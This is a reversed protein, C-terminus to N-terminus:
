FVGRGQGDEILLLWGMRPMGSSVLCDFEGRAKDCRVADSTVSENM